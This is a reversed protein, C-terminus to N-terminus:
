LELVDETFIPIGQNIGGMILNPNRMWWGSVQSDGDSAM